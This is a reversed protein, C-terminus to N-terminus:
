RFNQAYLKKPPLEEDHFDIRIENKYSNRKAILYKDDYVLEIKEM